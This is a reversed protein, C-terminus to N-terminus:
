AGFGPNPPTGTGVGRERLQEPSMFGISRGGKDTQLSWAIEQMDMLTPKTRDLYGTCRAVPELVEFRQTANCLIREKGTVASQMHLANRCTLCLNTGGHRTGNIVKLVVPNQYINEM